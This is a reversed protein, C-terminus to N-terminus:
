KLVEFELVEFYFTGHTSIKDFVIDAKKPYGYKPDYSLANLKRIESDTEFYGEIISFVKDINNRSQYGWYDVQNMSPNDTSAMSVTKGARVTILYDGAPNGHGGGRFTVKMKYDKVGSKKWVQRNNEFEQQVGDLACSCQLLFLGLIVFM